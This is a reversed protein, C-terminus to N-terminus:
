CFASASFVVLHQRVGKRVKPFLSQLQNAALPFTRDPYVGQGTCEPFNCVAWGGCFWVRYEKLQSVLNLYESPERLDSCHMSVVGGVVRSEVDLVVGDAEASVLDGWVRYMDAVVGEVIAFVDFFM